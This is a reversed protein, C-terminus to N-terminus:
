ISKKYMIPGYADARTDKDTVKTIKDGKFRRKLPIVEIPIGIKKAYKAEQITIPGGGLVFVNSIGNHGSSTLDCHLQIWQKTNSCPNGKKDFGGWMCDGKSYDTHWKINDKQVFGPFGWAEAEKIQIMAFTIDPRTEALIQFAFGIDPKSKNPYDGFYLVVSHKPISSQITRITNRIDKIYKFQNRAGHGIMMFVLINNQKIHKILKSFPM